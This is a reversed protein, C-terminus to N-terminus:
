IKWDEGREKLIRKCLIIDGMSKKNMLTNIEISELEHNIKDRLRDTGCSKLLDEYGKEAIEEYSM